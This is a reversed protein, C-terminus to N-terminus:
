PPPSNPPSKKLETATLVWSEAQHDRLEDSAEATTLHSILEGVADELPVVSYGNHDAGEKGLIPRLLDRLNSDTECDDKILAFANHYKHKWEEMERDRSASRRRIATSIQRTLRDELQGPKFPGDHLNDLFERAITRSIEEDTADPESPSCPASLATRLKDVNRDLKSGADVSHDAICRDVSMIVDQSAERLKECHTM